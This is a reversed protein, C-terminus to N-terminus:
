QYRFELNGFGLKCYERELMGGRKRMEVLDNLEESM